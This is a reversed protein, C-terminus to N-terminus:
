KVKVINGNPDVFNNGDWTLKIGNKGVITTVGAKLKIIKGGIKMTKPKAKGPVIIKDLEEQIYSSVTGIEDKDEIKKLANSLVKNVKSRTQADLPKGDLFKISRSGDTNESILFKSEQMTKFASVVANYVGPKIVTDDKKGEAILLEKRRSEEKAKMSALENQLDKIQGKKSMVEQLLGSDSSTETNSQSDTAVEQVKDQAPEQVSDQVKEQSM